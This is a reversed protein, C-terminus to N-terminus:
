TIGALEKLRGIERKTLYRWQGERLNRATLHAFRTRKLDIVRFGVAHCMRKVERKRGEKLTLEFVSKEQSDQIIKAEGRALVGEELKIGQKFAKLTEPRIRGRVTVLYTKEVEFKPHTLRFTLEGDNTLLLVGATDKDLRGVPFVKKESGLLDLVTPRGFSDRVTSLYGQPKNLLIYILQQQLSVKKGDLTVQDKSEDVLVGLKKVAMGNIAVRGSQILTDANRRSCVGSHALFKNLRM